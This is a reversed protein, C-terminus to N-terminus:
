FGFAVVGKPMAHYVDIMALALDQAYSAHLLDRVREPEPAVEVYRRQAVAVERAALIMNALFVLFHPAKPIWDQDALLTNIRDRIAPDEVVHFQWPLQNFPAASQAVIKQGMNSVYSNVADLAPLYIPLGVDNIQGAVTVIDFELTPWPGNEATSGDAMLKFAGVPAPHIVFQGQEDTEVPTAVQVPLGPGHHTQFLRMTVGPIPDNSNDLVVGTIRTEAPDAPVRASALFAAPHGTNGAFTAEVLNNDFGEQKGLLLVAAARGDGDTQTSFAALGNILGGGQRVRFTVPVGGLRNFGADTVIAVFPLPLPAGVVGIQGNGTDVVIKSAAAATGSATFLATGEFGVATAEVLNNGVGSRSGTRFMVSAQGQGDTNVALSGLGVNGSVLGGSNEKVEFVVPVGPVPQGLLNILRVVLPQPLVGGAPASQNDGSVVQIIPTTQVVRMVTISTTAGNGSQDTGTAQLVNPGLALPVGPALFSRNAVQAAIGNVTVQAQQDNITGVVIDNILGSVNVSASITVLNDDPGTITLRPPTTDLTVQVSATTVSGNVNTAVATLTNTGELIPVNAVFAGGSVPAPVGNITVTAGPDGVTGAVRIAGNDVDATVAMARPVVVEYDVDCFDSLFLPCSGTLVLRRM